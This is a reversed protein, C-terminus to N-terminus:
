EKAREVYAGDATNIVVRTGTAIHPPVQTRVGNSLMASKFSNAATQGKVVPETETVELIVRQPGELAIANGNHLSIEVEMNEQLYPVLDGVVDASVHIQEYNEKNMFVYDDGDAYLYTFPLYEVHAKEVPDTTKWRQQTKVGDSIRRMDVQTTPTGKGPFFSEASLVVYLRGDELEVVNGKRLNSAIVKVMSVKALCFSLGHAGSIGRRMLRSDQTIGNAPASVRKGAMRFPTNRAGERGGSGLPHLHRPISSFVPSARDAGPPVPLAMGVPAGAKKGPRPNQRPQPRPKRCLIKDLDFAGGQLVTWAGLRMQMGKGGRAHVGITPALIEIEVGRGFKGRLFQQRRTLRANEIERAHPAVALAPFQVGALERHQFPIARMRGIGCDHIIRHRDDAHRRLHRARARKGRTTNRNIGEKRGFFQTGSIREANMCAYIKGRANVAPAVHKRRRRPICTNNDRAIIAPRVDEGAHHRFLDLRMQPAFPQGMEVFIRDRFRRQRPGARMIRAKGFAKLGIGAAHLKGVTKAFQRIRGFLAATEDGLHLALLKEIALGIRHILIEDSGKFVHRRGAAHRQAKVPQHHQCRM